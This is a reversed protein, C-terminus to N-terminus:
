ASAEQKTHVSTNKEKRRMDWGLYIVRLLYNAQVVKQADCRWNGFSLRGAGRLIEGAM